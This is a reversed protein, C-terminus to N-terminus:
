LCQMKDRSVIARKIMGLLRNARKAAETYRRSQYASNRMIVRLDREESVRM